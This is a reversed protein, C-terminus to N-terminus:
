APRELSLCAKLDSLQDQLQIVEFRLREIEALLTRNFLVQQEIIRDLYAEKVHTTSNIRLWEILPGVMPMNSRVRYERLAIDALEYLPSANREALPPPGQRALTEAHALADRAQAEFREFSFSEARRHGRGILTARLAPDSLVRVIQAALDNADGPSFMLGAPVGGADDAGLVWPMAGSASAVVPIGIAMAEVLPVGFGEHQSPVVCVDALYYYPQTSAVRGTFTIRDGVGREASQGRLRIALDRYTPMSSDDGVILLHLDAYRDALLALAEVLLDLRKNGAVRGVYLLVRREQLRWRARLRSLEAESPRLRLVSLDVGIPVIHIRESPYGSHRHLEEAIFPSDAVALHAHWALETGVESRRLIDRSRRDEWLDPPTVGHYWFITAGSAERFREALPFWIPYELITLEAPSFVKAGTDRSALLSRLQSPVGRRDQIDLLVSCRRANLMRILAATHLGLASRLDLSQTIIHAVCASSAMLAM